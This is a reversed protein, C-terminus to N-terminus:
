TKDCPVGLKARLAQIGAEYRRHASSTSCDCLEAIEEFRLGGWLRAIIVERQDATLANLAEVAVAADLGGIESEVFWPSMEAVRVERRARRGNAKSEDLAAHRVVRYLWPVVQAPAVRQSMLKVFASQVIDEPDHSWQRAYLVLAPGYRDVLSAIEKPSM